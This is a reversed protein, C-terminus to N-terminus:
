DRQHHREDAILCKVPQLMWIIPINLTDRQQMNVRISQVSNHGPRVLLGTNVQSKGEPRRVNARTVSKSKDNLGVPQNGLVYKEIPLIKQFVCRREVYNIMQVTILLSAIIDLQGKTDPKKLWNCFLSLFMSFLNICMWSM